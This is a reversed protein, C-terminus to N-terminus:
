TAQSSDDQTSRMLKFVDFHKHNADVRAGYGRRHTIRIKICLLHHDTNCKAGRKVATVLYRKQDQKRMIAYDICHWLKSKPHEWTLEHIDRKKFWTVYSPNM